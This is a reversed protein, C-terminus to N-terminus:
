LPRAPDLRVCALDAALDLLAREDGPAPCNRRDVQRGLDLAADDVWVPRGALPPVPVLRQRLRPVSGLRDAVLRRVAEVDGGPELRLVVGFQQPVRGHASLAGMALDDAGAREITM